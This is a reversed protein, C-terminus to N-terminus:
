PWCGGTTPAQNGSEDLSLEPCQTDAAQPGGPVPRAIIRFRQGDPGVQLTLQYRGSDSLGGNALPAGYRQQQLHFRVQDQAAQLLAVRAEQRHSRRIVWQWSPLALAALLAAIILTVLLEILSFGRM